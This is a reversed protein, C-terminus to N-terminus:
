AFHRGGTLFSIYFVYVGYEMFLCSLSFFTSTQRCAGAFFGQKAADVFFFPFFFFRSQSVTLSSITLTCVHLQRRSVSVTSLPPSPLPLCGELCFLNSFSLRHSKSSSIALLSRISHCITLENFM